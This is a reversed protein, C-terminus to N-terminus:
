QASDHDDGMLRKLLHYLGQLAIALIMVADVGALVMAIFKFVGYVEDPVHGSAYLAEAAWNIGAAVCLLGMLTGHLKLSKTLVTKEPSDKKPKLHTM